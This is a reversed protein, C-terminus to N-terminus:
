NSFPRSLICYSIFTVHLPPLCTVRTRGSVTPNVPVERGLLKMKEVGSIVVVCLNGPRSHTGWGIQCACAPYLSSIYFASWRCCHGTRLHHLFPHVCMAAVDTSTSPIHPHRTSYALLSLANSWVRATVRMRMKKARTLRQSWYSTYLVAFRGKRARM